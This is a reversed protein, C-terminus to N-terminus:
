ELAMSVIFIFPIAIIAVLIYFILLVIGLKVAWRPKKIIFSLFLSVPLLTVTM